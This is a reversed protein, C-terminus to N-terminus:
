LEIEKGTKLHYIIKEKVQKGTIRNIALAYLELQKQYKQKLIEKANKVINDTKYDVLVFSGDEEFVCDIIGQVMVPEDCYGNQPGLELIFPKERYVKQSKCIRKYLGSSKFQEIMDRDILTLEKESFYEGQKMREILM